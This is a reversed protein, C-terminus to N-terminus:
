TEARDLHIGRFLHRQLSPCLSKRKELGDRVCRREMLLSPREQKQLEWWDELWHSLAFFSRHASGGLVSATIELWWQYDSGMALVCGCPWMCSLSPCLITSWDDTLECYSRKRLLAGDDPSQMTAWVDHLLSVCVFTAAADPPLPIKSAM